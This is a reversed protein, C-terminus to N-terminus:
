SVPSSVAPRAAPLRISITTGAGPTSACGVRGGHRLVIARTVALGLGAGGRDRTRAADTRFFPEFIRECDEPAVGMGTDHVDVAVEAPGKRVGVVVEGGERNYQVANVVVNTLAEELRGADGVVEAPERALRIAVHRHTALPRVDDIVRAAVDDVRVPALEGDAAATARALSLLRDTITTMRDVARRCVDLSEVLEAPQREASRAWQLETSMTALPTRLEHSADATFQRQRELAAHLRDFAENLSHALQGLETAVQAQPIRTGADRDNMARAIASIDAIPRLARGVLWWGGGFALAVTLLGGVALRGTLRWVEARAETLAGGALVTPGSASRVTVERRGDRTRAGPAPPGPTAGDPDTRDIVQGDPTWVV